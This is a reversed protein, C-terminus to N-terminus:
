FLSPPAPPAAPRAAREGRWVAAAEKLDGRLLSWPGGPLRAEDRAATAPHLLPLLLAGGYAPAARQWRGRLRTIGTDGPGTGLVERTAANGMTLILRPRLAALQPRLWREACTQAEAPSPDRHAPPRCKVLTTLFLPARGLGADGLLARLEEGARGAFPRGQRDEEAGPADAILLLSPSHAQAPAEGVWEGPVPAACGPRLTCAVCSRNAALLEPLPAPVSGTM